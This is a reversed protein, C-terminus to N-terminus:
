ATVVADCSANVRPCAILRELWCKVSADSRPACTVFRILSAGVRVLASPAAFARPLTARGDLLTSFRLTMARVVGAAPVECTEIFLPAPADRPFEVNPARLLELMLAFRADCSFALRGGEPCFPLAARLLPLLPRLQFACPLAVSEPRAGCPNPLELRGAFVVAPAFRASRGGFAPWIAV